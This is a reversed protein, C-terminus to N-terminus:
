FEKVAQHYISTHFIGKWAKYFLIFIFGSGRVPGNTYHYPEKCSANNLYM